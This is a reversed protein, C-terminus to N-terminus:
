LFLMYLTINVKELNVIHYIKTKALRAGFSDLLVNERVYM